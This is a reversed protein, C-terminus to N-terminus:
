WSTTNGQSQLPCQLVSKDEVGKKDEEGESKNEESEGGKKEEKKM